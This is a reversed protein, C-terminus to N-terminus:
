KNDHNDIFKYAVRNQGPDKVLSEGKRHDILSPMPYYIKIENKMLFNAIRTDDQPINMKNVHELMPRVLETKICVAVGWHLWKSIIFGEKLGKKSRDEMRARKGWHFSVAGCNNKIAQEIVKEAREIFNDCIIADDQIVIHWDALPDFMSWSRQGNIACGESKEDISFPVDGLKQKIYDFFEARKPHAMVSISIKM